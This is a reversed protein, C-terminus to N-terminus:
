AKENRTKSIAGLATKKQGKRLFYQKDEGSRFFKGSTKHSKQKHHSNSYQRSFRPTGNKNVCIAKGIKNTDKTDCVQKTLDTGFLMDSSHSSPENAWTCLSLFEPKLSPKIQERRLRSLEGVVHGIPVIADINAALTNKDTNAKPVM